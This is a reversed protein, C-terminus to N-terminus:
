QVKNKCYNYTYFATTIVVSITFIITVVFGVWFSWTLKFYESLEISALGLILGALNQNVKIDINPTQMNNTANIANMRLKKETM